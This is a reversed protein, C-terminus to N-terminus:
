TKQISGGGPKKSSTTPLEPEQLKETTCCQYEIRKQQIWAMVKLADVGAKECAEGIYKRVEAATKRPETVASYAGSTVGKATKVINIEPLKTPMLGAFPVDKKIAADKVARLKDEGGLGHSVINILAMWWLTVFYERKWEETKEPQQAPIEQETGAGPLPKPKDAQNYTMMPRNWFPVDSDVHTQYTTNEQTRGVHVGSAPERTVTHITSAQTGGASGAAPAGANEKPPINKFRGLPFLWPLTCAIACIAEPPVGGYTPSPTPANTDTETSNTTPAASPMASPSATSPMATVGVTPMATAAVSPSATSPSATASVGCLTSMISTIQALAQDIANPNYYRFQYQTDPSIQNMLNLGNNDIGEGGDVGICVFRVNNPGGAAARIQSVLSLLAPGNEDRFDGILPVVLPKQPTPNFQPVQNLVMQLATYMRTGGGIHGWSNVQSQLTSLSNSVGTTQAVFSFQQASATSGTPSINSRGLLELVFQKTTPYASTQSGSSDLVIANSIFCVLEDLMRDIERPDPNQLDIVVPITSNYEGTVDYKLKVDEGVEGLGNGFRMPAKYATNTLDLEQEQVGRLGRPLETVPKETGLALLKNTDDTTLGGPIIGTRLYNFAGILGLVGTAIMINKVTFVPKGADSPTGGAKNKTDKPDAM